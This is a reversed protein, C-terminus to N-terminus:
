EWIQNMETLIIPKGETIVITHEHQAVFGGKNGILTWGDKQTVAQTSATSIFTEVAVVSNKKFRNFNYKDRYNAIEHPEEQLNRVIRNGTLKQNEKYSAKIAQKQILK